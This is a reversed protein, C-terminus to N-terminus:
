ASADGPPRYEPQSGESDTSGQERDRVPGEEAERVPRQDHTQEDQVSTSGNHHDGKGELWDIYDNLDAVHMQVMDSVFNVGEFPRLTPRNM